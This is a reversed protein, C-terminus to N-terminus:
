DMKMRRGSRTRSIGSSPALGLVQNVVVDIRQGCLIEAVQLQGVREVVVVAQGRERDEPLM